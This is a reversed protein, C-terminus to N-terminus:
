RKSLLRVIEEASSVQNTEPVIYRSYRILSAYVLESLSISRNRRSNVIIDHTLGWGSYFPMGYTTVRKGRLLAEFGSLSSMVHVSDCQNICDLIDFRDVVQDSWEELLRVDILGKRKGALIDPHNKYLIYADPNQERVARLLDSNNRIKPSGRLISADDEVQGCVLIIEKDAARKPLTLKADARLNYKTTNNSVILRVLQEAEELHRPSFKGENLIHELDSPRTADYYIGRRDIVLSCPLNHLAGLGASRIFGDEMRVNEIGKAACQDLIDDFMIGWALVTAGTAMAQEVALGAKARSLFKVQDPRVGIFAHVIGQKWSPFGLCIHKKTIAPEQIVRKASCRLARATSFRLNGEGTFIRTRSGWIQGVLEEREGPTQCLRVLDIREPLGKASFVHPVMVPIGLAESTNAFPGPLAIVEGVSALLRYPNHSRLVDVTLGDGSFINFHKWRFRRRFTLLGIRSGPRERVIQQFIIPLPFPATRGNRSFRGIDPPDVILIDYRAPPVLQYDQGVGNKLDELLHEFIPLLERGARRLAAQRVCDMNEHLFRWHYGKPFQGSPTGPIQFLLPHDFLIELKRNKSRRVVRFEPYNSPKWHIILKALKSILSARESAIHKKLSFKIM